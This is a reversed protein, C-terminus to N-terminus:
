NKTKKIKSYDVLCEAIAMHQGANLEQNLGTSPLIQYTTAITRKTSKPKPKPQKGILFNSCLKKIKTWGRAKGKDIIDKPLKNWIVPVAGIFSRKFVNLSRAKVTTELRMGNTYHRSPRCSKSDMVQPAFDQLKGRGRGDMLKLALRIAAAERRAELTEITFNGIREASRQVRDLKELHTQAAGMYVVNGYEMVSRVFMIYMTKMNNDDLVFRLRRLAALRCRAKKALLDIMPKWTMRSDLTFGVLKIEDVQEVELGNMVIGTCDFKKKKRSFLAFCTKSPEWTTRNDRGWVMLSELDRNICDIVCEKNGDTTEYWLGNDDAYTFLLTLEDIASELESIDFKWLDPSFKGGQPVSSYIQKEKSEQGQSVVKIFREYLYDKVLELAHETMGKAELRKKLRLWWCLDFAGKVDLSVLIGERRIELASVIKLSLLAGYDDTGCDLMFGFQSEPTFKNIWANLQPAITDEFAVSLNDLVQVPRYNKAVTVSGRKHVPTIRGIKWRSPYKRKRVIFKFLKDVAQVIEDACERLFRPGIGNASKNVDLGRLVKKVRKLRIRFGSIKVQFSDVPKFDDEEIGAGNSMKAQFHDVLDDVSPAALGKSADLGAIEKTLSWFNRDCNSMKSLKKKIKVQYKRYAKKQAKKNWHVAKIYKDPQEFREKFMQQKWDYAKQCRYNWWPAPGPKAPTKLDVYEDVVKHFVDDLNKEAADVTIHEKPDWGQLERRLAGKIHHWPANHWDRVKSVVPTKPNEFKNTEFKINMSLHDSSGLHESAIATGGWCSMVLDLTNGERTPFNVLQKLSHLEAFEEAAVGAADLPTVSQIWGPNHSNFDGIYM